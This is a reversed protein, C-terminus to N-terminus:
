KHEGLSALATGAMARLTVSNRFTSDRISELSKKMQEIQKAQAEIKNTFNKEHWTKDARRIWIGMEANLRTIEDELPQTLLEAFATLYKVIEYHGDQCIYGNVTNFGAKKALEIIEDQTIM